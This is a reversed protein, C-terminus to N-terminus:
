PNVMPDLPLIRSRYGSRELCAFSSTSSGYRIKVLEMFGSFAFLFVSYSSFFISLGVSDLRFWNAGLHLLQGNPLIETLMRGGISSKAELIKVFCGADSLEKAAAVGSIGGGIILIPRSSNKCWNPCSHSSIASSILSILAIIWLYRMNLSIEMTSIETDINAINTKQKRTLTALYKRVPHFLRRKATVTTM